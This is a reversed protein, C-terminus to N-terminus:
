SNFLIDMTFDHDVYDMKQENYVVGFSTIFVMEILKKPSNLARIGERRTHLTKAYEPTIRYEDSYFKMECISLVDDKRDILLDIQFGKDYKDNKRHLFSSVESQVGSIGLAM